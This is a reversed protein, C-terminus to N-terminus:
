NMVGGLAPLEVKMRGVVGNACKECLVFSLKGGKSYQECSVIPEDEDEIKKECFGCYFTLEVKM